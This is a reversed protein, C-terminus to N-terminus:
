AWGYFSLEGHVPVCTVQCRSCVFLRASKQAPVTRQLSSVSRNQRCALRGLHKLFKGVACGGFASLKLAQGCQACQRKGVLECALLMAFTLSGFKGGAFLINIFIKLNVM